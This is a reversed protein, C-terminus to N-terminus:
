DVFLFANSTMLVRGLAAGAQGEGRGGPLRARYRSGPWFWSM